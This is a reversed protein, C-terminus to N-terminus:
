RIACRAACRAPRSTRGSIALVLPHDARVLGDHPRLRPRGGTAGAARRVSRKRIPPSSQPRAMLRDTESFAHAPTANRRLYKTAVGPSCPSRGPSARRQRAPRAVSRRCRGDHRPDDRLRPPRRPQGAAPDLVPTPIIHDPDAPGRRDGRPWRSSNFGLLRVFRRPSAALASAPM